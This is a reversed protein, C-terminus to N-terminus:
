AKPGAAPATYTLFFGAKTDATAVGFRMGARLYKGYIDNDVWQIDLDARDAFIIARPLDGLFAHAEGAAGLVTDGVVVVSMGLVTKGSPSIISDQLLYRGNSDKVTDLFNYFSQSAIIARNYAPDLEVNNIEKLDDISSVTKATFKKLEGAIATNATNRKLQQGNENVIGVLDAESDDIDEQSIPIAGRYTAVKWEVKDFEPKALTPNKELEEVTHLVGTVNKLTPYVGQARKASIVHTFPKLDVVTQLERQPVYSQDVPILSQNDASKVGTTTPDASAEGDRLMYAPINMEKGLEKSRIFANIEKRREDTTPKHAVTKAPKQKGELAGEYLSRKEELDKIEASEKDFAARAEKAKATADETDQELLSRVEAKHAEASARKEDLQKKIAALKEDLTM